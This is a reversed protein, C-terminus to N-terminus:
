LRNKNHQLQILQLYEKKEATSLGKSNFILQLQEFRAQQKQLFFLKLIEQYENCIAKKDDILLPAFIAQQLLKKEGPDDWLTMIRASSLNPNYQLLDLLRIFIEVGPINVGRYNEPNGAILALEPYVLLYSIAKWAPSNISAKSLGAITFESFDKKNFSAKLSPATSTSLLSNLDTSSVGAIKALRDKMLIFFASESPISNLYPKALDILQSRGESKNTDVKQLLFNFFFDSLYDAQNIKEEFEQKGLKKVLTDPDEGQEIFMFRAQFGPKILPLLKFMAKSAADKGARDGDFCFVINKCSRFLKELHATTTATGLTAVAYRIGQQALSVVDMYGEVVLIQEIQRLSQTLEYLGYLENGKHFLPTEPSNIYKAINDQSENPNEIRRGGFGITRGRKDRIPFMLRDRFRDYYKNKEENHIILGTDLLTDLNNEQKKLQKLIIDWQPASYGIAYDKIIQESLGRLQVYEAIASNQNSKLQSQLHQYYYNSSQEMLDFLSAQKKFSQQNAQQARQPVDLGARNALEEIADTFELHEYERLFAIADGSVGCGFCHYFQKTSSVSFSPTKEGHFPCCATYNNGKKKLPTYSNILEVIDVRSLLTDIFDRPIQGAM